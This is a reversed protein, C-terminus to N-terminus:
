GRSFQLSLGVFDVHDVEHLRFDREDLSLFGGVDEAVEIEFVDM